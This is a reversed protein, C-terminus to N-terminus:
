NNNEEFCEKAPTCLECISGELGWKEYCKRANTLQIKAQGTNWDRKGWLALEIAAEKMGKTQQRLEVEFAKDFSFSFIILFLILFNCIFVIMWVKAWTEFSSIAREVTEINTAMDFAIFGEYFLHYVDVFRSKGQSPHKRETQQRKDRKYWFDLSM